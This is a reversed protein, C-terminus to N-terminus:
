PQTALMSHLQLLVWNVHGTLEKAGSVGRKEQWMNRPESENRIELRLSTQLLM